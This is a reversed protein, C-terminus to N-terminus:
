NEKGLIEKLGHIEKIPKCLIKFKEGLISPPIIIIVERNEVAEPLMTKLLRTLTKVVVKNGM